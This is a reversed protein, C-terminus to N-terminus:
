LVFEQIDKLSEAKLRREEENPPFLTLAEDNLRVAEEFTMGPKVHEKFWAHRQKGIETPPAYETKMVECRRLRSRNTTGFGFGGL